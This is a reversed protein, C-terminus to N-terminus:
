SNCRLICQLSWIRKLQVWITEVGRTIVLNSYKFTQSKWAVLIPMFCFFIHWVKLKEIIVVSEIHNSHVGLPLCPSVSISMRINQSKWAVLNPMAGWFIGWLEIKRNDGVQFTTAIPLWLYVLVEMGRWSGRCGRGARWVGWYGIHREAGRQAGGRGGHGIHICESKSKEWWGKLPLIGAGGTQMFYSVRVSWCNTICFLGWFNVTKM